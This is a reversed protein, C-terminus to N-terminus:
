TSATAGGRYSRLQQEAKGRVARVILPLVVILAIVRCISTVSKFLSQEITEWGFAYNTYILVVTISGMAVGFLITDVAALAILNRRLTPSSGPGTPYLIKLPEFLNVSRMRSFWGGTDGAAMRERAYKERAAMQRTKSLSEPIVFALFLLYSLQAALAFYFVSLITGTRDILFAALMPGFGIGAFLCAHMRGFAINRQAPPTCDSAYSNALAMAAIFSGCLGDVASGVWLVRVPFTEPYSAATLFLILNALVGGTGLFMLKKRGYRDSLAGIKPSTIASLIGGVLSMTLSFTAVRAQVEPIRCQPNEQGFIVPAMTFTPDSASQDSIYERCILSLLLSLEPVM